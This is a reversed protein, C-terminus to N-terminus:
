QNPGKKLEIKALATERSIKGSSYDRLVSQKISAEVSAPIGCAVCRTLRVNFMLTENDKLSKLTRGYELMNEKLEKEFLPYLEKVKKDRDTKEVDRLKVTPMSYLGHDMENSSYVQMYYIVGYDRLREFYVDENTFYTKSLDSRYLRSFISSLLELDPEAEEERESHVVSIKAAAQERTMKGQKYQVMDEKKAEILLFSQRNGWAWTGRGDQRNTVSIKEANPLQTLLDTYDLMFDKITEVLKQQYAKRASDVNIEKGKSIRGTRGNITVAERARTRAQSRVEDDSDYEYYFGPAQASRTGTISLVDGVASNLYIFNMDHPLRFTVGYGAMYHADAEMSFFSRAGQQQKIVTGLVNKAIELDRTMREDDMKQAGIPSLAVLWILISLKTKM